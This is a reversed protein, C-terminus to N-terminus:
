LAALKHLYTQLPTSIPFKPLNTFKAIPLYKGDRGDREDIGNREEIKL